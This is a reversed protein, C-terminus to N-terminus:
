VIGLFPYVRKLILDLVLEKDENESGASTRIHLNKGLRGAPPVHGTKNQFEDKLRYEM